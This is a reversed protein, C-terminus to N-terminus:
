DFHLEGGDENGGGSKGHSDDGSGNGTILAVAAVGLDVVAAVNAIDGLASVLVVAAVLGVASGLGAAVLGVLATATAEKAELEQAICFNEAKLANSAFVALDVLLCVAALLLVLAIAEVKDLEVATTREDINQLYREVLM